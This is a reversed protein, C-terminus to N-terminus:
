GTLSTILPGFEPGHARRMSLYWGSTSSIRICCYVLPYLVSINDLCQNYFWSLCSSFLCLKPDRTGLNIFRSNEKYIDFILSLLVVIYIACTMYLLYTVIRFPVGVWKCLLNSLVGCSIASPINTTTHQQIHQEFLTKNNSRVYSNITKNNKSKSPLSKFTKTHIISLLLM